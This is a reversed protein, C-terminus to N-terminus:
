LEEFMGQWSYTEKSPNMVLAKKISVPLHGTQRSLSVIKTIIPALPDCLEKLLWMPIPDLVCSKTASSVDLKSFFSAVDTFSKIHM